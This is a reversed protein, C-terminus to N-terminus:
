LQNGLQVAIFGHKGALCDIQCLKELGCACFLAQPIKRKDSYYFVPFPHFYEKKWSQFDM